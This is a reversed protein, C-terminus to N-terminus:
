SEQLRNGGNRHRDPTSADTSQRPSIRFPTKANKTANSAIEDRPAIHTAKFFSQIKKEGTPEAHASEEQQSDDHLAFAIEWAGEGGHM